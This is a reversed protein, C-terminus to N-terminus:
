SQAGMVDYFVKKGLGSFDITELIKLIRSASSGNGYPNPARAAQERFAPDMAKQLSQIIDLADPKCDIVSAGRIRGMQRDGINVTPIGFSPTEILGSSSNGLVVTALSMLSLYRLQGLSEFAFARPTQNVFEQILRRIIRGDTDANPMTFIVQKDIQRLAQFLAAMQEDATNKELTVPHFTALIVEQEIAIGLSEELESRELLKLSKINDIGVAGVNFVYEPNEGLQIVRQRYKETATFHIHSMKTVSHRIAEDILGFTAEGGHIHAVPIRAFTAATAAALVEYRDGLLLLLDPQLQDLADALGILALGTSKSIGVPTDSSLLMELKWDISFGQDEIERYTLGFEPSLHSGTALIQLAFDPHEQLKRMTGYLLGYEARSGTLVCVSKQRKGSM